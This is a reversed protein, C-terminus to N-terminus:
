ITELKKAKRETSALSLIKSQNNEAERKKQEKKKERAV